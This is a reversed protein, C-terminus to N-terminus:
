ILGKRRNRSKNKKGNKELSEMVDWMTDRARAPSNHTTESRTRLYLLNLEIGPGKRAENM